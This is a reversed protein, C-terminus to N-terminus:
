AEDGAGSVLVDFRLLVTHLGRGTLRLSNRPGLFAPANDLQAENLLIGTLPMSVTAEDAFSYVQFKAEFSATAHDARGRCAARALGAGRLGALGRREMADLQGLLAPPSLVSESGDEGNPIVYVTAPVAPAPAQGYLGAVILMVLLTALLTANPKVLTP